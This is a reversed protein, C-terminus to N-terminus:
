SRDTETVEDTEKQEDIGGYWRLFKTLLERYTKNERSLRAKVAMALPREVWIAIQRLGKQEYKKRQGVM